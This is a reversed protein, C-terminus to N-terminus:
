STSMRILCVFPASGSVIADGAALGQTKEVLKLAEEDLGEEGSM